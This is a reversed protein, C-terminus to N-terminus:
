LDRNLLQLMGRVGSLPIQIVYALPAALTGLLCVLQEVQDRAQSKKFITSGLLIIVVQKVWESEYCVM